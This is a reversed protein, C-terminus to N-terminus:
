PDNMANLFINKVYGPIIQRTEIFNTWGMEQILVQTRSGYDVLLSFLEGFQVIVFPIVMLVALILVVLLGYCLTM